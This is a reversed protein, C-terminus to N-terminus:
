GEMRMSQKWLEDVIGWYREGNGLKMHAVHGTGVFNEMEVDFGKQRAEVGHDEIDNRPVMDDVDSYIYVRKTEKVEEPNSLGQWLTEFPNEMRLAFMLTWWLGFAVYLMAVVPLRKYFPQSQWPLLLVRFAVHFTARGPCSDLVTCHVPFPHGTTKLYSRFLTVARLSGGNSFVHLLIGPNSTQLSTSCVAAIAPQLCRELAKRGRYIFDLSSSQIILISAAPYLAQYGRVYKTIHAPNALMWTCLIILGPATQRTRPSQTAPKYLHVCTDLQHMGLFPTKEPMTFHSSRLILACTTPTPVITVGECRAPLAPRLYSSHNNFNSAGGPM